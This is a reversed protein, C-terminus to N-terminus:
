LPTIADMVRAASNVGNITLNGAREVKDFVYTFVQMKQDFEAQLKKVATYDKNEKALQIQARLNGLELSLKDKMIKTEQDIKQASAYNLAQRSIETAEQRSLVNRKALETIAQQDLLSTRSNTELIQARIQDIAAQVQSTENELRKADIATTLTNGVAQGAQAIGSTDPVPASIGGTTAGSGGASLIPNLGAKKLDEVEWQHANQAREREWAIQAKMANHASAASAGAAGLGGIAGAIGSIALGAGIGMPM